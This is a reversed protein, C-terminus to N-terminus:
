VSLSLNGRAARAGNRTIEVIATFLGLSEEYTTNGTALAASAKVINTSLDSSSVAFNNSVENLADVIHQADSAELNFAKLQSVIFNSAEGATLESDAVNQLMSAVVALNAADEDNFGSKRFETAAGVLESTTRAVMERSESLKSVYTDLARGELDSVKRFDVLADDLEFVQDAMSSIIDISTTLIKNLAQYTLGADQGAQDLNGIAQTAEQAGKASVGVTVKTGKLVNNLSKQIQSARFEADLLISYNTSSAM